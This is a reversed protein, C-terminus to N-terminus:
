IKLLNDKQPEKKKLNSSIINTYSILKKKLEIALSEDTVNWMSSKKNQVPKTETNIANEM